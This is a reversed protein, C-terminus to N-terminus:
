DGNLLKFDVDSQYSIGLGIGVNIRSVKPLDRVPVISSPDVKFHVLLQDWFLFPFPPKPHITQLNIPDDDITFKGKLCHIQMNLLLMPELGFLSPQGPSCKVVVPLEVGDLVSLRAPCLFNRQVTGGIMSTDFISPHGSLGIFEALESSIQTYSSSTDNYMILDGKKVM